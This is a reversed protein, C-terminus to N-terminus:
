FSNSDEMAFADMSNHNQNTVMEGNSSTTKNSSLLTFGIAVIALLAVAFAIIKKM